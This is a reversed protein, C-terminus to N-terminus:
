YAQAKVESGTCYLYAFTVFIFMGVFFYTTVSREVIDVVVASYAWWLPRIKNIM